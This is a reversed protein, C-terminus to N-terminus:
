MNNLFNLFKLSFGIEYVKPLVDSFLLPNSISFDMLVESKAYKLANKLVFYIFLLKFAEVHEIQM